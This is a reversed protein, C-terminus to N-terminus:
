SLYQKEGIRTSDLYDVDQPGVALSTIWVLGLRKLEPEIVVTALRSRHALARRGIHTTFVPYIKPLQLRLLGTRALNTLEVWEGGRLYTQPQQDPPACLGFRDDYDEPLLPKCSKEWRADYTGAFELRPSWHSCLPGFGAPIAAGGGAYEIRHAPQDILSRPDVAFGKGIPNRPERAHRSPDPNCTDTGGYAWEYTIPFETFPVPSSPAIGAPSAWYVRPGYVVLKKELSDVRLVVPVMPVPTDNPAHAVANVVVDTTPKPMVLEAEYLLSSAGPDGTYEAERRVPLQEDALRVQGGEDIDFTAKVAVVWLHAGSKDRFWSREAAYPTRNDLAWM